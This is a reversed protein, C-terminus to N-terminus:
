LKAFNAQARWHHHFHQCLNRRARQACNAPACTQRKAWCWSSAWQVNRQCGRRSQASLRGSRVTHRGERTGLQGSGLCPPMDVDCGAVGSKGDAGDLNFRVLSIGPVLETRPDARSLQAEPERRAAWLNSLQTCGGEAAPGEFSVKCCSDVLAGCSGSSIWCLFFVSLTCCSWQTGPARSSTSM